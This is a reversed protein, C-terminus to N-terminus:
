AARAKTKKFTADFPRFLRLKPVVMEGAQTRSKEFTYGFAAIDEQFHEEVLQRTRNNYYTRYDKHKSANVHPVHVNDFGLVQCVHELDNSLNEFRGIYDVIFKGEEDVLFSKQTELTQTVRWEIYKEFSGLSQFFANDPHAPEQLCYHYLSVQWDWPNRVFAFKFLTNFIFPTLQTRWELAGLHQPHVHLTSLPGRLFLRKTCYQHLFERSVNLRVFPWRIAWGLGRVLAWQLKNLMRRGPSALFPELATRVSMGAVKPIHVFLFRHKLSMLM